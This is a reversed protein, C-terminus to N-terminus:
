KPRPAFQLNFIQPDFPDVPQYPSVTSNVAPVTPTNRQATVPFRDVQARADLAKETKSPVSASNAHPQAAAADDKDDRPAQPAAKSSDTQALTATADADSGPKPAPKGCVARVWDALTAYAPESVGKSLPSFNMRGHPTISYSLLPSNDPSEPDLQSLVSRLNQQTLKAMPRPSRQLTLPGSHSTDHCGAVACTRTLMPQIQVSFNSLLNTPVAQQLAAQKPSVDDHSVQTVIKAEPRARPTKGSARVTREVADVMAQVRSSKPALTAAREIAEAAHEHLDVLLCWQALRIHDEPDQANIRNLKYRYVADFDPGVFEVESKPIEVKGIPRRVVYHSDTECIQGEIARGSRFLLVSTIESLQVTADQPEDAAAGLGSLVLSCITFFRNWNSMARPIYTERRFSDVRNTTM